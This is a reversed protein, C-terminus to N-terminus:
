STRSLSAPPNDEVTIRPPNDEVVTLADRGDGGRSCNDRTVRGRGERRERV